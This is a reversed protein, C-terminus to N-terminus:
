AIASVLLRISILILAIALAHQIRRAPLRRSAAAGLQAGPIVGLSLAAARRLGSGNRLGGDILHTATGAGSVIALVFHSTATAIHIPFGLSGALLPVHIVGGGIGLFSSAFGVVVSYLTGRALPVDYEHLTGDRDVMRRHTTFPRPIASATSTRRTTIWIALCGLLGGMLADFVRRPVLGVALAGLIAGPLAAVAFRAGSRWDVRGQRAYATTGSAANAFVVALSIASITRASDHPYVLLLVPTLLFGGGAGILTGLAGVVFGLAVLLLLTQDAM